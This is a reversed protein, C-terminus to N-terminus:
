SAAQAAGERLSDLVHRAAARGSGICAPIGVGRLSAGAVGVADLESVSQEIKGVRILHGVEFQPLASDWRTVMAHRPSGHVGLVPALEALVSATLEDDDVLAHREDGFRGVSARILEDGPRALHPWKRDLYTVGTILPARGDIRSTRPVLFGTGRLPVRVAGEPFSMTVVAVSAYQITSLMGAAVPALPALLVAAESAPVAVVVGDATLTRGNGSREATGDTGNRSALDGGNRSALDGGNRSALDGGNRSALDGGNRSALDLRWRTPPRRGGSRQKIRQVAEVPVGTHIAVGRQELASALRVALSATSGELTWFAPSPAAGGPTAAAQRRMARGLRRMLSGSQHSAALLLPFTAAASLEDVGGAHIGGVLPDVLRDVVARGLREGVIQGVSRDGFATDTRLHPSVLDGAVRISEGPGLIGSRFLPWWRTPVGLNLGEPMTRLRDRAWISAGVAGVPVMAAGLGLEACLETAEPRRALFADAALDVCRGAFAASRLKGGITGASELVHVEPQPGTGANTVLEWAAALGAIGGGIVAVV